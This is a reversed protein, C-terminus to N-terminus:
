IDTITLNILTKIFLLKNDLYIYIQQIKKFKANSFKKIDYDWNLYIYYTYYLSFKTIIYKHLSSAKKCYSYSHDTSIINNNNAIFATLFFYNYYYYFSM